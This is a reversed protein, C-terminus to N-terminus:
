ELVLEGKRYKGEHAIRDFGDGNAGMGGIAALKHHVGELHSSELPKDVIQKSWGSLSHHKTVISKNSM